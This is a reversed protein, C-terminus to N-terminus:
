SSAFSSRSSRSSEIRRRFRPSAFFNARVEYLDHESEPRCVRWHTDRDFLAHALGHAYAFRRRGLDMAENVVVVPGVTSTSAFVATLGVMYSTERERRWQWVLPM